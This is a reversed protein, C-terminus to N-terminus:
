GYFTIYKEFMDQCRQFNIDNVEKELETLIFDLDDPDIETDFEAHYDYVCRDHQRFDADNINDVIKSNAFYQMKPVEDEIYIFQIGDALPFHKLMIKNIIDLENEYNKFDANFMLYTHKNYQLQFYEKTGLGRVARQLELLMKEYNIKVYLRSIACYNTFQNVLLTTQVSTYIGM